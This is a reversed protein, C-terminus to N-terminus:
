NNFTLFQYKYLIKFLSMPKNLWDLPITGNLNHYCNNLINLGVILNKIKRVRFENQRNTKIQDFNLSLWNREPIEENFTKILLIALKYKSLM